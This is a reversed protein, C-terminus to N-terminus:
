RKRRYVITAEIGLNELIAYTPRRNNRLVDSLFQESVGWSRALWRQSGADKVAKRLMSLVDDKTLNARSM